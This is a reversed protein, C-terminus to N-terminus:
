NLKLFKIISKGLKYAMRVPVANGIQKYQSSISGVFKYDDPFTQIRAYERITLPRTEIPHCRETQKQTPSCLLTLSPENMSLRRLVGRKGGGSYYSKGLYDKQKEIDTIFKTEGNEKLIIKIFENNIHEIIENHVCINQRQVIHKNKTM